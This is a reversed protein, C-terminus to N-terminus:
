WFLSLHWENFLALWIMQTQEKSHWICAHSANLLETLEVSKSSDLNWILPPFIGRLNHYLIWLVKFISSHFQGQQGYNECFLLLFSIIEIFPNITLVSYVMVIAKNLWQISKLFDTYYQRVMYGHIIKFNKMFFSLILKKVTLMLVYKKWITSEFCVDIRSKM